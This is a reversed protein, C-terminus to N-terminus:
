LFNEPNKNINEKLYNFLLQDYEPKKSNKGIFKNYDRSLSDTYTVSDPILRWIPEDGDKRHLYSMLLSLDITTDEIYFPVSSIGDFIFYAEYEHDIKGTFSFKANKVKSKLTLGNYLLKIKGNKAGEIEGYIEFVGNNEQSFIMGFLFFVLVLSKIKM